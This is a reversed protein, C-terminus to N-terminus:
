SKLRGSLEWLSYRLWFNDFFLKAFAFIETDQGIMQKLSVATDLAPTNNINVGIGVIVWEAKEGMSASAESLVGSIKLWKNNKHNFVYVDNPPKVKTTIKYENHLIDCLVKAVLISLDGLCAPITQPRLLLSCYLGGLASDWKHDLRGYGATQKDAIVLTNAECGAEAMSKAITQTSETVAIHVIHKIGSLNEISKKSNKALVKKAM